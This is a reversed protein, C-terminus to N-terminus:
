HSQSWGRQKLALTDGVGCLTFIQIREVALQDQLDACAAGLIEEGGAAGGRKVGAVRSGGQLDESEGTDEQRLAKASAPEEAQWM